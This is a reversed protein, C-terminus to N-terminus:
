TLRCCVKLPRVLQFLASRLVSLILSRPLLAAHGNISYCYIDKYLYALVYMPWTLHIAGRCACSEHLRAGGWIKRCKRVLPQTFSAIAAPFCSKHLRNSPLKRQQTLLYTLSSAHCIIDVHMNPNDYCVDEPRPIRAYDHHWQSNIILCLDFFQGQYSLDKKRLPNTAGRWIMLSPDDRSALYINM